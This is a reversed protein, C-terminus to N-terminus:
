VPHRVVPRDLSERVKAALEHPSFPKSLYVGEIPKGTASLDRYGSMFLFRLGPYLRGADAALEYGGGKPMILDTLMLDAPREALSRLADEASGASAVQYGCQNLVDVVFQRLAVQDEVVLIRETGTAPVPVPAIFPVGMDAATAPLALGCLGLGAAIFRKM